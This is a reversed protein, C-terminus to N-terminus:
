LRPLPAHHMIPDRERWGGEERYIHHDTQHRRAAHEEEEDNEEQAQDTPLPFGAAAAPAVTMHGAALVTGLGSVLARQEEEGLSCGGGRGPTAAAAATIVLESSM